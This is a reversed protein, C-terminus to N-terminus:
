THSETASFSLLPLLLFPLFLLLSPFSNLSANLPMSVVVYYSLSNTCTRFLFSNLHCNFNNSFLLWGARGRIQLIKFLTTVLLPSCPQNLRIGQFGMVM